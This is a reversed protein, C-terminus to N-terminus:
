PAFATQFYSALAAKDENGIVENPLRSFLAPLAAFLQALADDQGTVKAYFSAGDIMRIKENIPCRAGSDKDSPTFPKDFRMSAKPIIAVYYATYGKFRQHKPMVLSELGKYLGALQGGSLTNYKNKMEAIIAHDDSVLDVVKGTGLNTWGSVHGLIRQHFEGVHNQLSKQAQRSSESKLWMEHGLGFGAMEFFAAFPDIVNRGMDARKKELAMRAISIVRTMEEEIVSDPLFNTLM